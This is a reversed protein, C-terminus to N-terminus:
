SNLKPPNDPYEINQNYPYQKGSWKRIDKFKEMKPMQYYENKGGPHGGATKNKKFNKFNMVQGRM